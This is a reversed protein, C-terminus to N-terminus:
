SANSSARDGRAGMTRVITSQLLAFSVPKTLHEDFGATRTRQVDDDTGFGTLAIAGVPHEATGSGHRRRFGAVVDTGSGDPLGLDSILLDFGDSETVRLADAVSHAVAVKYGARDLLKAMVKATDVHDEVLLIRYCTPATAPPDVIARASRPVPTDITALQVTFTAGQDRGPSRVSIRGGHAEVLGRSIALGLGLGGSAQARAMSGQEFADFVKPLIDSEIGIGSDAVEIRLLQPEGNADAPGNSTRVTIRGDTPTFKVANKLLNWVVQQLRAGDGLVHHAPASLDQEVVLRKDRIQDAPIVSLADAIVRHVDVTETRLQLKGRGVRTLDLLDDILRAELEVNRHIMALDDRVTDPLAPDVTASATAALVPTLPTRLEHSLMALFQDKSRNAKEAAEKAERLDHEARYRDSLDLAFAVAEAGPIHGAESPYVSAVGLLVPVPPQGGPRLFATEFAPSVGDRGVQRLAAEVAQRGAPVTIGSLWLPRGDGGRQQGLLRFFEDNGGSVEGGFDCFFVGILNADVLRRLRAQSAALARQAQLFVDATREADARAVAQSRAVAFLILGIGTGGILIFPVLSVNSEGHFAPRESVAVTWTRGAIDLPFTYHLRAPTEGAVTPNSDYVQSGVTAGQGEYVQMRLRASVNDNVLHQFLDESRFSAFVFGTVNKRRTEVTNPVGDPGYIPVYIIFGPQRGSDSSRVLLITPTAVAAATDCAQQMAAWRTPESAMDFGLTLRRVPLPPAVYRVAFRDPGPHVPDPPGEAPATTVDTGTWIHFQSGSERRALSLFQDRNSPTVRAAFGLGRLGGFQNPLDLSATYADFAQRSIQNSAAYLGVAGRLALLYRDVAHDAQDRADFALNNFRVREATLATAYVYYAATVTLALAVTLTFAPVGWLWIRRGGGM